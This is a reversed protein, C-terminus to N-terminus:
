GEVSDTARELRASPVKVWDGRCIFIGNKVPLTSVITTKM